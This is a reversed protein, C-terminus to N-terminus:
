DMNGESCGNLPRSIIELAYPSQRTITQARFTYVEVFPFMELQDIDKEGVIVGYEYYSDGTHKYKKIKVLSGPEVDWVISASIYNNRDL